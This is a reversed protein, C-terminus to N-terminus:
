TGNLFLKISESGQGVGVCVDEEQAEAHDVGGREVVDGLLPNWLDPGVVRGCGDNEYPSLGVKQQVHVDEDVQVLRVDLWDRVGPCLAHRVLDPSCVVHLTRRECLLVQLLRKIRGNKSGNLVFGAFRLLPPKGVSASFSEGLATPLLKKAEDSSM